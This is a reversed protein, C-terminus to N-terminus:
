HQHHQHGPLCAHCYGLASGAVGIHEVAASIDYNGCTATMTGSTHGFSQPDGAGHIPSTGLSTQSQPLSSFGSGTMSHYATSPTSSESSRFNIPSNPDKEADPGSGTFAIEKGDGGRWGYWWGPQASGITWGSNGIGTPMPARGLRYPVQKAARRAGYRSKPLVVNGQPDTKVTPQRVPSWSSEISTPSTEEPSWKSPTQGERALRRERMILSQEEGTLKLWDLESWYRNIDNASFGYTDYISRTPASQSQVNEVRVPENQVESATPIFSPADGRLSRHIMTAQSLTRGIDADVPARLTLSPRTSSVMPQNSLSSTNRFMVPHSAERQQSIIDEDVLRSPTDYEAVSNSDLSRTRAMQIDHNSFNRHVLDRYSFDASPHVSELFRHSYEQPASLAPARRPGNPLPLPPLLAAVIDVPAALQTTSLRPIRTPSTNPRLNTLRADYAPQLLSSKNDYPAKPAVNRGRRALKQPSDTTKAAKEGKAEGLTSGIEKKPKAPSRRDCQKEALGDSLYLVKSPVNKTSSDKVANIKKPSKQQPSPSQSSCTISGHEAAVARKKSSLTAGAYGGTKPPSKPLTGTAITAAKQTENKAKRATGVLTTSKTPSKRLTSVPVDTKMWTEPLSSRRQRDNPRTPTTPIPSGPRLRQKPGLSPGNAMSNREAKHGKTKETTTKAKNNSSEETSPTSSMREGARNDGRVTSALVNAYSPRRETTRRISESAAIEEAEKLGPFNASRLAMHQNEDTPRSEISTIRDQLDHLHQLDAASPHASAPDGKTRQTKLRKVEDRLVELEAEILDFSDRESVTEDLEDICPVSQDTNIVPYPTKTSHYADKKPTTAPWKRSAKDEDFYDMDIASGNVSRKGQYPTRPGTIQYKNGAIAAQGHLPKISEQQQISHLYLASAQPSLSTSAININDHQSHNSPLQPASRSRNASHIGTGKRLQRYRRGDEGPDLEYIDEHSTHQLDHVALSKDIRRM